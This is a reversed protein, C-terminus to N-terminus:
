DERLREDREDRPDAYTQGDDEDRDREREYDTDCRCVGPVGCFECPAEDDEEAPTM